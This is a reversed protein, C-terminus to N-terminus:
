NNNTVFKYIIKKYKNFDEQWLKSADVNAPSEFNPNNLISIISMIISDVSHSPNGRENIEEYGYIDIGEHLISICVNGDPYINPHFLIDIFKFIPPKNPYEKPFDITCKIQAGEFIYYNNNYNYNYYPHNTPLNKQLGWKCALYGEVTQQDTLTHNSNFCIFDGIYGSFGRGIFSSGLCVTSKIASYKVYLIVYNNLNNYTTSAVGNIYINNVLLM